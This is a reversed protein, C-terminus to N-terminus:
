PTCRQDFLREAKLFARPIPLEGSRRMWRYDRPLRVRSGEASWVDIRVSRHTLQHHVIGLRRPENLTRAISKPLSGIVDGAQEDGNREVSPIEWMGSWLGDDPRRRLLISSGATVVCATLELPKVSARRRPPPIEDVVGQRLSECQRAVPCASCRPTQPTCVTAGLEMLAQNFSGCDRAPLIEEALRWLRKTMAPADPQGHLEFLRALVRAVNGDLIPARRGFAISAIAGATYRGIGPLALLGEVTDPLEGNLDRCVLAAADHLAHARRYYGLGAWLALVDDRPADALHQVTPYRKMFREYYPAVTAAQTQQLMIEAVLQAYADSTRRRWPLDRHSLRFWRLLNRRLSTHSQDSQRARPM